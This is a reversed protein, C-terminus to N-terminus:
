GPIFATISKYCRRSVGGLSSYKEYRCLQDGEITWKGTRFSKPNFPSVDFVVEEGVKASLYDQSPTTQQKCSLARQNITWWTVLREPSVSIIIRYGQGESKYPVGGDYTKGFFVQKLCESFGERRDIQEQKYQQEIPAGPTSLTTQPMAEEEGRMVRELRQEWADIRPTIKVPAQEQRMCGFSILLLPGSLSIGIRLRANM